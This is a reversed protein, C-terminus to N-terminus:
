QSGSQQRPATQPKPSLKAAEQKYYDARSDGFKAYFRALTEYEQAERGPVRGVFHTLLAAYGLATGKDGFDAAIFALGELAAFAIRPDGQNSTLAKEFATNASTFDKARVYEIGARAYDVATKGRDTRLTLEKEATALARKATEYERTKAELAAELDIIRVQLPPVKLGGKRADTLQEQADEFEKKKSEYEKALRIYAAIPEYFGGLKPPIKGACLQEIITRQEQHAQAIQELKNAVTLLELPIPITSDIGAAIFPLASLATVVAQYKADLSTNKQEAEALKKRAEELQRNVALIAQSDQQMSAKLDQAAKSPDTSSATPAPKTTRASAIADVLSHFALPLGDKSAPKAPDAFLSAVYQVHTGYNGSAAAREVQLERGLQAARAEAKEARAVFGDTVQKVAPDLAQLPGTTSSGADGQPLHAAALVDLAPAQRLKRIEEDHKEKQKQLEIELNTGAEVLLADIRARLATNEQKLAEADDARPAPKLEARLQGALSDFLKMDDTPPLEHGNTTDANM